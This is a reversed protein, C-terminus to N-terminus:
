KKEKLANDGAEIAKHTISLGPVHKIAECANMSKSISDFSDLAEQPKEGQKSKVAVVLGERYASLRKQCKLEDSDAVPIQAFATTSCTIITMFLFISKM